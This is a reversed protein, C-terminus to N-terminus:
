GALKKVREKFTEWDNEDVTAGAAAEHGGGAAKLGRVAARMVNGAGINRSQNRASIKYKNGIKSYIIVLKERHFESLKTSVTSDINYKSNVNYMVVNGDIKANKEADAMVAAMENEVTRYSEVLREAGSVSEIKWPDETRMMIGVMEECSVLKTARAASIMDAIRGFFSEYPLGEINYTKKTAEILDQSDELNYDSIMGVAAIWLHNKMDELESCIKYACYSTSQYISPKTFRPNYHVVNDVKNLDKIIQHHDIILVDSFGKVKKVIDEQQDVVLDLFIIKRPFTSKIKQMVNKEMPMPQSIIYPDKLGRKEMLKMVLACSCIGDGDNNFVILVEDNKSISDLFKVADKLYKM